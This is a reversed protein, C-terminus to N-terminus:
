PSGPSNLPSNLQRVSALFHHTGDPTRVHAYTLIAYVGHQILWSDPPNFNEGAAAIDDGTNIVAAPDGVLVAQPYLDYVARFFINTTYGVDSGQFNVFRLVLGGNGASDAVAQDVPTFRSAIKQPDGSIFRKHIDAGIVWLISITAAIAWLGAGCRCLSKAPPVHAPTASL